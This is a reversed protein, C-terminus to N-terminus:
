CVFIMQLWKLTFKFFSKANVKTFNTNLKKEESVSNDNTNDTLGEVLVWFNNM